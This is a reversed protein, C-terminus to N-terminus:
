RGDDGGNEVGRGVDVDVLAGAKAGHLEISRQGIKGASLQPEGDARFGPALCEFLAAKHARGSNGFVQAPVDVGHVSLQEDREEARAVFRRPQM